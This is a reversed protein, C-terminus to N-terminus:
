IKRFEIPIKQILYKYKGRKTRPIEDVFEIKLEINPGLKKYLEKNIDETDKTNYNDAKVIRLIIEGKKEQYFQFRKVNDFVDSHLHMLATSILLNDKTIVFEQSWRGKISKLLPYNRGCSCKKSTYTGIDGTKYRIFPFLFNKFGTVVIEGSGGENTVPMGNKDILEVFGYQPFFHYYNSKECSCAMAVDEAHGYMEFIRCQFVEELLQRQWDYLAEAGCIVSKLTPFPEINNKKMFKALVTISSPFAVIFKPKFKRIKEIYRPLNEETMHFSSLALQRGFFLYKWFKANSASSIVTDRLTVSKDNFSYGVRDLAAKSYALLEASCVAKEVYLVLPVGTTGGTTALQFKHKPYNKAKLDNINKRVIEKTLFPLKQLDQFSHIDEPKLGQEGFLKTYYPVNSYSHNLLKHLRELQYAEIQDQSWWQSGQLFRYTKRFTKYNFILLLIDINTFSDGSKECIYDNLRSKLSRIQKM